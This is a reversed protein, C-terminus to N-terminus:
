IRAFISVYRTKILEIPNTVTVAGCAAFGGAFFGGMTSLTKPETPIQFDEVPVDEVNGPVFTHDVESIKTM